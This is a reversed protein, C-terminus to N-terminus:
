PLRLVRRVESLWLERGYCTWHTDGPQYVPQSARTYQSYVDVTPVRLGPHRQVREILHNYVARNPEVITVKNPVVALYVDDFGQRKFRDATANISDVLANVQGDTLSSFSSQRKTTDTDTNLFIHQKDLSLSAGTSIRDFWNLTVRAKLEKFWFAWDQSFLLSELREEVDARHLDQYTRKYWPIIATRGTDQVVSLERIPQNFHDRLHREVTEILLVNRHAPNLKAQQPFEWKIRQYHDVPFDSRSVREAESFSDGILYLDTTATDSALNASPCPTTPTKFHPLASVRYLDGYRYDDMVLGLDYLWHGVTSSLGGAWFLIVLALVTYKLFRM